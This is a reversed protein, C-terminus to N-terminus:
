IAGEGLREGAPLPIFGRRGALSFPQPHPHKTTVNNEPFKKIHKFQTVLNEVV